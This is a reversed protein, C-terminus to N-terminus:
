ENLQFQIGKNVEKGDADYVRFFVPKQTAAFQFMFFLLIFGDLHKM